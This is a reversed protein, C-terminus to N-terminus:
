LVSLGKKVMLKKWLICRQSLDFLNKQLLEVLNVKLKEFLKKILRMLFIQIKQFAILFDFLNKWKFFEQYVNESKIEYTFSGQWYIVIWYWNKKLLTTISTM